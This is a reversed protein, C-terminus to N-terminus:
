SYALEWQGPAVRRGVRQVQQRVKARWHPNRRTRPHSSIAQYLDGLRVAGRAARLESVVLERWSPDLAAMLVSRPLRLPVLTGQDKPLTALVDLDQAGYSCLISPAFHGHPSQTGDPRFFKVKRLLFFLGSASRLVHEHWYRGDSRVFIFAIGRDHLAMRSLFRTIEPQSYPPNLWVRGFWPLFLGDDQETYRRRATKWPM